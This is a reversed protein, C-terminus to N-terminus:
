VAGWANGDSIGEGGCALVYVISAAFNDNMHPIHALYTHSESRVAFDPECNSLELSETVPSRHCTLTLAAVAWMMSLWVKGLTLARRLVTPREAIYM